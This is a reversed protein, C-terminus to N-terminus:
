KVLRSAFWADSNGTPTHVGRAMGTHGAIWGADCGVVEILMVRHRNEASPHLRDIAEAAIPFATAFGFTVESTRSM